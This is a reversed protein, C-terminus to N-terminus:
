YNVNGNYFDNCVQLFSEKSHDLMEECFTGNFGVHGYSKDTLMEKLTGDIEETTFPLKM